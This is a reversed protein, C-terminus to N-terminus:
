LQTRYTFQSVDAPIEVPMQNTPKLSRLAQETAAADATPSLPVRDTYEFIIQHPNAPNLHSRWARVYRIRDVPVSPVMLEDQALQDFFVQRTPPLRAANQVAEFEYMIGEETKKVRSADAYGTMLLVLGGKLNEAISVMHESGDALLHTGSGSLTGPAAAKKANPMIGGAELDRRLSNYGALRVGNVTELKTGMNTAVVRMFEPSGPEGPVAKAFYEKMAPLQAQLDRAQRYQGWSDERIADLEARSAGAKRRALFQKELEETRRYHIELAEAMAPHAGAEELMPRPAVKGFRGAADASEFTTEAAEALEVAEEGARAVRSGGKVVAGGVGPVGVEAAVRAVGATADLANWADKTRYWTRVGKGAKVTDEVVDQLLGAIIRAGPIPSYDGSQKMAAREVDLATSLSPDKRFRRGAEDGARARAAAAAPGSDAISARVASAIARPASKLARLEADGDSLFANLRMYASAAAAAYHTAWGSASGKTSDHTNADAVAKMRRAEARYEAPSIQPAPVVGGWTAGAAALSEWFSPGAARPAAPRPAPHASVLPPPELATRSFGRALQAGPVRNLASLDSNSGRGGNSAAGAPSLAGGPGNTGWQPGHAVGLSRASAATQRQLAAAEFINADPRSSGSAGFPATALYRAVVQPILPASVGLGRAAAELRAKYAQNSELPLRAQAEAAHRIAPDVATKEEIPRRDVFEKLAEERTAGRPAGAAASVCATFVLFLFANKHKAPM